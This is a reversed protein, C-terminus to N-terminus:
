IWMEPMGNAPSRKDSSVDESLAHMGWKLSRANKASPADMPDTTDLASVGLYCEPGQNIVSQPIPVVRAGHGRPSVRSVNAYSGVCCNKGSLKM